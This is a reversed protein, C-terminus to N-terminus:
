SKSAGSKVSRVYYQGGLPLWSLYRELSLMGRFIRHRPFFITYAVNVSQFKLRLLLKRLYSSTMLVADEDFACSRVVRRTVPNLPNHEFVYLRGGPRLIRKAELLMTEHQKSDIHHLVCAIFAIDFSAKTFPMDFGDYHVFNTGPLERERAIKISEISTDIGAYECGRFHKQFFVASNGDGCGIDLIRHFGGNERKRIEGVKQESFYDSDTGSIKIVENHARRYDKAFGDFDDFLKRSM